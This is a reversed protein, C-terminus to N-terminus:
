AAERDFWWMAIELEEIQVDDVTNDWESPNWRAPFCAYLPWYLRPEQKRNKQVIDLDRLLDETLEGAGEPSNALMDCVEKCWDYFSEDDNVGRELTVNAISIRGPEKMDVFAGGEAYTAVGVTAELGTAKQFKSALNGTSNDNVDFLFKSYLKRARAQAGM